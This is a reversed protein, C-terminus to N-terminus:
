YNLIFIDRYIQSLFYKKVIEPMACKTVTVNLDYSKFKSGSKFFDTKYRM